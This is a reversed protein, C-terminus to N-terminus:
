DLYEQKPKEGDFSTINVINGNDSNSLLPIAYKCCLFTGDIKTETVIRWEEFTAQEISKAIETVANNVLVDLRGHREGIMRLTDSVSEESRVDLKRLEGVGGNAEIENLVSRGAKEDTHYTVVSHYGEAALRIAIARGIGRSSGTVLSVRLTTNM